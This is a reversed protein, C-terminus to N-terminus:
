RQKDVFLPGADGSGVGRLDVRNRRRYGRFVDLLADLMTESQAQLGNSERACKKVGIRESRKVAGVPIEV